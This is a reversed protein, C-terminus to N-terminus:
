GACVIATDPGALDGPALHQKRGHSTLEDYSREDRKFRDFGERGLADAAARLAFPSPAVLPDHENLADRVAEAIRVHGVEHHYIARRLTEAREHDVPTMHRWSISRPMTIVIEGLQFAVEGTYRGDTTRHGGVLTFEFNIRAEGPEPAGAIVDRCSAGAVDATSFRVHERRVVDDDSGTAFVVALVAAFIRTV